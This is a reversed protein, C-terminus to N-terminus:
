APEVAVGPYDSASREGYASVALCTELVPSLTPGVREEAVVEVEGAEVHLLLVLSDM